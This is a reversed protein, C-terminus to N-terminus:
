DYRRCIEASAIETIAHPASSDNRALSGHLIRPRPEELPVVALVRATAAAEGAGVSLRM